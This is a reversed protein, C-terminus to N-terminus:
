TLFLLFIFVNFLSYNSLYFSGNGQRLFRDSGICVSRIQEPSQALTLCSLGRTQLSLFNGSAVPKSGQATTEQMVGLM